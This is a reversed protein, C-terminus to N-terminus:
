APPQLDLMMSSFSKTVHFGCDLLLNYAPSEMPVFSFIYPPPYQHDLLYRIIARGTAPDPCQLDLVQTHGPRTTLVAYGTMRDGDQCAISHLYRASRRLFIPRRTWHVPQTQRAGDRLVEELAVEHATPDAAPGLDPYPTELQVVDMCPVFGLRKYIVTPSSFTCDLHARVYGERRMQGLYQHVLAMSLRRGRCEPIVGWYFSYSENAPRDVCNLVLGAPQSGVFGIYSHDYSFQWFNSLFLYQMPDLRFQFMHGRSSENMINAVDAIDAPLIRRLSYDM